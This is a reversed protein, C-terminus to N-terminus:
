RAHAATRRTKTTLRHTASASGTPDRSFPSKAYRTTTAAAAGVQPDFFNIILSYYYRRAYSVFGVHGGGDLILAAVLPNDTRAILDAVGEATGMPDNSAHVILVPVRACGMKHGAPRGHYPLLRVFRLADHVVNPGSFESRAFEDDILQRLNGSPRPYHKDAMRKRITEQLVALVPEKLVNRPTKLKDIIEEYALTPSFAIVGAEFRRREPLPPLHAAINKTISPHTRPCGDYWAALLAQNASWCFGILGTRRIHPRDQLWDSVVMLNRTESVGFTYPVEPHALDTHGYGRNEYALVHFGAALLAHALDNTRKIDNYGFFGPLLVICDADRVAGGNKAMGLWGYTDLTDSVPIHVEEFGPWPPALSQPDFDRGTCQASHQLGWYNFFLTQLWAPNRRFHAFVDVPRGSVDTLDDTLLPEASGPPLLHRLARHTRVLWRRTSIPAGPADPATRVVDGTRMPFSQEAFCGSALLLAALAWLTALPARFIPLANVNM